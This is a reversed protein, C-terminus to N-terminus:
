TGDIYDLKLHKFLGKILAWWVEIQNSLAPPVVLSSLLLLQSKL